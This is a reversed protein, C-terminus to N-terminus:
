RCQFFPFFPNNPHVAAGGTGVCAMRMSDRDRQATAQTQAITMNQMTIAGM